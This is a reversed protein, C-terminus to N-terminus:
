VGTAPDSSALDDTSHSPLGDSRADDSDGSTDDDPTDPEDDVDDDDDDDDDDIDDWEDSWDGADLLDDDELARERRRSRLEAAVAAAVPPTGSAEGRGSGSALIEEVTIDAMMAAWTWPPTGADLAASVLGALSYAPDGDFARDLAVRATAGAGSVWACVALVTAVPALHDPAVCRVSESLVARTHVLLDRDGDATLARLLLDRSRVYSCIGVARAALRELEGSDSPDQGWRALARVYDDVDAVLDDAVPPSGALLAGVRVRVLDQAARPELSAVLEARSDLPASGQEIFMASALLAEDPDIASGEVPCCRLDFCWYSRWREAVVCLADVAYLGADDLVAGIDAVLDRLPLDRALDDDRWPDEEADPYVVLIVDHAAVSRLAAICPQWIERVLEPNRDELAPIDLRMTVRVTRRDPGLGIAVVSREPRFGVLHPVIAPM